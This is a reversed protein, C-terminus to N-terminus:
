TVQADANTDPDNSLNSNTKHLKRCDKLFFLKLVQVEIRIDQSAHHVSLLCKLYM